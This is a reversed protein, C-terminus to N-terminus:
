DPTVKSTPLDRGKVNTISEVIAWETPFSGFTELFHNQVVSGSFFPRQVYDKFHFKYLYALFEHVLRGIGKPLSRQYAGM